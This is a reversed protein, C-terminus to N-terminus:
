PRGPDDAIQFAARQLSATNWDALVALLEVAARQEEIWRAQDHGGSPEPGLEDVERRARRRLEAVSLAPSM